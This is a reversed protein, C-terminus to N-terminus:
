QILLSPSSIIIKLYRYSSYKSKDFTAKLDEEKSGRGIESWIRRKQVGYAYKSVRRCTQLEMKYSGSAAFAQSLSISDLDSNSNNVLYVSTNGSSREMRGSQYQIEEDQATEVDESPEESAYESVDVKHITRRM